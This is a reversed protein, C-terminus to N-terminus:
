VECPPFQDDLYEMLKQWRIETKDYLGCDRTQYFEEVKRKIRESPKVKPKKAM